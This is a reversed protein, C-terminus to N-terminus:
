VEIDKPYAISEIIRIISHVVTLGYGVTVILHVYIMPIKAGPSIQNVVGLQMAYDFGFKTVLAMLVAISLYRFVNMVTIAKLRTEKKPFFKHILVNAVDIEIHDHRVIAVATGLFASTIFLYRVVEEAWVTSYALVYRAVVQILMITLMAMFMIGAIALVVKAVAAEAKLVTDFPKYQKTNEM